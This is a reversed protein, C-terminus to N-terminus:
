VPRYPIKSQTVEVGDVGYCRLMAIVAEKAGSSAAPGIIIEKIMGQQRVKWPTAVYPVIESERVRTKIEGALSDAVGFIVQRVEKEYSYAPHKATISDWILQGGVLSMTLEWIFSKRITPDNLLNENENAAKLYVECVRDISERHRNSAHEEEYTVSSVLTREVPSLNEDEVIGFMQPSFGIAFGRGNDGYARWQGLDNRARSFCSIFVRLGLHMRESSLLDHATELFIAQKPDLGESNADDITKRALDLGHRFESPDNLYRYDTCWIVETDFIGHLGAATTYQYLTEEVKDADLQRKLKADGWENFEGIAIKLAEPLPVKSFM